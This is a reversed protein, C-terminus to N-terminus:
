GWPNNSNIAQALPLQSSSPAKASESPVSTFEAELIEGANPLDTPAIPAFTLVPQAGARFNVVTSGIETVVQNPAVGNRSLYEVYKAFRLYGSVPLSFSVSWEGSKVFIDAGPRYGGRQAEEANLGTEIEKKQGDVWRYHYKRWSVIVGRFKEYINGSIEIGDKHAKGFDNSADAKISELESLLEAPMLINVVKPFKDDKM